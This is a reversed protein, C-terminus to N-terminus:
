STPKRGEVITMIGGALNRHRTEVLGAQRFTGSLEEPHLFTRASDYLYEYAWQKGTWLGGMTPVIRRFCFWYFQRFIPIGPQGVDLSVVKGGPKVVRAVEQLAAAIDPLNRLGWGVTACDFTDRQFPLGMVDGQVLRVTDKLPFIGLNKRGVALMQQSFDLGVVLGSPGTALALEMTLMGTGCCFDLSRGGPKAESRLVVLRRWSKDLRLTMLSNVLDYRRAISDFMARISEDQKQPSSM